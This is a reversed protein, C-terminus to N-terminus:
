SILQMFESRTEADDKFGSVMGYVDLISVVKDELPTIDLDSLAVTAESTLTFIGIPERIWETGDTRRYQLFCQYHTEQTGESNVFLDVSFDGNEDVPVIVPGSAMLGVTEEQDWRSLEFVIHMSIFDYIQSVSYIPGTVTATTM